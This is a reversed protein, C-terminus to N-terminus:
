KKLIQPVKFAGQEWEPANKELLLDNPIVPIDKRQYQDQHLVTTMPEITTLDLANITKVQDLINNMSNLLSEKKETDLKLHALMATKELDAMQLTM